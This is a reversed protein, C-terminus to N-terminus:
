STALPGSSNQKEPVVRIIKDPGNLAVYIFGDPGVSLDRIRGMGWLLEEREVLKGGKVRIRDLNNGALGGAILDGKWNPFAAGKM